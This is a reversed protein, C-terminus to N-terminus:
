LWDDDYRRLARAMQYLREYADANRKQETHSPLFAEWRSSPSSEYSYPYFDSARKRVDPVPGQSVIPIFIGPVGRYVIPEYEIDEKEQLEELPVESEYPGEYDSSELYDNPLKDYIYRLLSLKERAEATEEDEPFYVEENLQELDIPEEEWQQDQSSELIREILSEDADEESQFEEPYDVIPQLGAKEELWEKLEDDTLDRKSRQPSDPMMNEATLPQESQASRKTRDQDVPYPKVYGDINLYDYWNMAPETEKQDVSNDIESQEKMLTTAIDGNPLIDEKISEEMQNEGEADDGSPLIEDEVTEEERDVEDELADGAKLNELDDEEKHGQLLALDGEEPTVVEEVLEEKEETEAPIKNTVEDVLEDVDDAPEQEVPDVLVPGSKKMRASNQHNGYMIEEARKVNNIDNDAQQELPASFSPALLSFVLVPVIQFVQM